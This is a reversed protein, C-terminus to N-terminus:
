RAELVLAEYPRLTLERTIVPAAYNSLRVAANAFGAPLTCPTKGASFNCVILFRKGEYERAYLLRRRSREDYETVTGRLIAPTERRLRPLKQYYRYVSKESALDRAANIKKYAPNVSQWPQAGLNFGGNATSDWQMPTRAHDRAGYRIMPFALAKPLHFSKTMTDFVFRSVPDQMEDMTRFRSNTM